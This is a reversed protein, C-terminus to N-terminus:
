CIWGAETEDTDDTDDADSTDSIDSVMFLFMLNNNNWLDETYLVTDTWVLKSDVYETISKIHVLSDWWLKHKFDTKNFGSMDSM